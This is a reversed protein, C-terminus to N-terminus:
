LSPNAISKGPLEKCFYNICLKQRTRRIVIWLIHFKEDPNSWIWLISCIQDFKNIFVKISFKMKQSTCNLHKDQMLKFQAEFKFKSSQWNFIADFSAGSTNLQLQHYFIVDHIDKPLIIRNSSTFCPFLNAGDWWWDSLSLFSRQLLKM